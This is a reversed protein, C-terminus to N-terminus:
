IEEHMNYDISVNNKKEESNFLLHFLIINFHLLSRTNVVWSRINM